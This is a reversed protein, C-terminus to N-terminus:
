FINYEVINKHKAKKLLSIERLTTSPLGEDDEDVKIKKIAV